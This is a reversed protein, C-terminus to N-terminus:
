SGFGYPGVRRAIRSAHARIVASCYDVPYAVTSDALPRASGSGSDITPNRGVEFDLQFVRQTGSHSSPTV